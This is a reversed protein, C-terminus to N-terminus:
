VTNKLVTSPVGLSSIVLAGNSTNRLHKEAEAQAVFIPAVCACLGGVGVLTKGETGTERRDQRRKYRKKNHAGM